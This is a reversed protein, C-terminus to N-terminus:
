ICRRILVMKVAVSGGSSKLSLVTVPANKMERHSPSAHLSDGAHRKADSQAFLIISFSIVANQDCPKPLHGTVIEADLHFHQM